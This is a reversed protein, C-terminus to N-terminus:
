GGDPVPSEIVANSSLALSTFYLFKYICFMKFDLKQLFSPLINVPRGVACSAPRCCRMQGRLMSSAAAFCWPCDRPFRCESPRLRRPHFHVALPRLNSNKLIIKSFFVQINGSIAVRLTGVATNPSSFFSSSQIQIKLQIEQIQRLEVIIEDM